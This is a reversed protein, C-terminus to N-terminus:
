CEVKNPFNQIVKRMTTRITTTAEIPKNSSSIKFKIFNLM